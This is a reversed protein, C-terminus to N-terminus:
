DILKELEKRIFDELVTKEPLNVLYKSVFLQNDLGSTAYKALTESKDGCLILGIPPNDGASQENDKYYNLYVNMQGADAHDFKGIKLDILIHCKLIRHYFVLDVRYHTNDITIRKQRAEFCFGTGLEILFQQLHNLIAQELESESYASREELGLFEWIYPDRFIDLNQAPKQNKFKRIIAEKDKSLGTRVYLATNMARELERVSWNNKITEVEYFLRELPDEKRILEVFHSFSLRSLLLKSPIPYEEELKASVTQRIESEKNDTVQLEPTVSGRIPIPLEEELKATV